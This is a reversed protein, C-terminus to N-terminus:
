KRKMSSCKWSTKMKGLHSLIRKIVMLNEFGGHSYTKAKFIEAMGGTAIKDVLYYKGFPEPRFETM